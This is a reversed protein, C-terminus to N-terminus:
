LSGPMSGESARIFAPPMADRALFSTV